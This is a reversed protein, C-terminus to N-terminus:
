LVNSQFTLSMKEFEAYDYIYENKDYAESCLALLMTDSDLYTIEAWTYTDLFYSHGSGIIVLSETGDLDETRIRLHGSVCVLLQKCSRHAHNGRVEGKYGNVVFVRKVEFPVDAFEISLLGNKYKFKM